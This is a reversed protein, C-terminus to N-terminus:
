KLFITCNKNTCRYKKGKTVFFTSMPLTSLSKDEFVNHTLTGSKNYKTNADFEKQSFRGRGNILLNEPTFIGSNWVGLIFEDREM